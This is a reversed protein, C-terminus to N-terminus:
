RVFDKYQDEYVAEVAEDIDHSLHKILSAIQKQHYHIEECDHMMYAVARLEDTYETILEVFSRKQVETTLSITNSRNQAMLAGGFTKLRPRLAFTGTSSLVTRLGGVGQPQHPVPVDTVDIVFFGKDVDFGDITPSFGSRSEAVVNERMDFIM